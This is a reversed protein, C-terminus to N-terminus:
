GHFVGRIDEEIMVMEQDMKVLRDNLGAFSRWYDPHKSCHITHLQRDRGCEDCHKLNSLWTRLRFM